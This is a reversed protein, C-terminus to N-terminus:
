GLTAPVPWSLMNFPHQVGGDLSYLPTSMSEQLMRFAVVAFLDANWARLTDQFGPSRLKDPLAVPLHHELAETKVASVHIRQGRGAPKDPATVVGVVEHQGLVLARLAAAAFDPTGFFVIRLSSHEM